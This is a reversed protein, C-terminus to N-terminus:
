AVNRMEVVRYRTRLRRKLQWMAKPSCYTAASRIDDERKERAWQTAKLMSPASHLIKDGTFTKQVVAWTM